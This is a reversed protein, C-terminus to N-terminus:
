DAEFFYGCNNCKWGKLKKYGMRGAAIMLFLGVITSIPFFMYAVLCAVGVFFVIVGLVQVGIDSNTKTDRFMDGECQKCQIIKKNVM